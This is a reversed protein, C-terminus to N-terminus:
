FSDIQMTSSCFCDTANKASRLAFLNDKFRMPMKCPLLFTFFLNQINRLFPYVGGATPNSGVVKSNSTWCALGNRWPAEHRSLLIKEAKMNRVKLSWKKKRKVTEPRHFSFTAYFNLTGTLM